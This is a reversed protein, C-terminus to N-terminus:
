NVCVSPQDQININMVSVEEMVDCYKFLVEYVKSDVINEILFLQCPSKKKDSKSFNVTGGDLVSLINEKTLGFYVLQCESINTFITNDSYLHTIVRKNISFYDVYAYFTKKMRNEPGLSLFFISIIVGFGFLVFRKFM